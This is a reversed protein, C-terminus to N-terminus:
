LELVEMVSCLPRDTLSFPASPVGCSPGRGSLSPRSSGFTIQCGHHVGQVDIENQVKEVNSM